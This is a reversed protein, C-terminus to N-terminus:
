LRLKIGIMTWRGPQPLKQFDYYTTNLINNIEIYPVIHKTEYQLKADCLWYPDYQSEITPNNRQQYQTRASLTLGKIIRFDASMTIKYKLYDLAYYSIYELKEVGSHNFNTSASFNELFSMEEWINGLTFSISAEVGSTNVKSYNMTQWKPDSEAKKVWDIINKGRRHFGSVQFNMFSNNYDIGLDFTAADEQVLESNGVNSYGNYYLETFTPLRFSQNASAKINLGNIINYYVDLGLYPAIKNSIENYNLLINAGIIWDRLYMTHNAFANLNVRNKEHTLYVDEEFIHKIPTEREEGLRNSRIRENRADIGINTSGIKSKFNFDSGIGVVDTTHYNHGSYSDPAGENNRYLEFRDFNKKYYIKPAIKVKKGTTLKLSTIANNVQEFQDPHASSYFGNSGFANSIYGLQFDVTTNKQEFNTQYFIRKTDFDTNHMYGDSSTANVNLSHTFNKTKFYLGAESDQFNYNGHTIAIEASNKEPKHTVINIAGSFAGESNYRLGAGELIEIREISSLSIPINLNNHGTQPDSINIGNLMILVQDFSGARISIDAQTSHAGRQRVDLGPVVDLLQALSRAGSRDIENKSVVAIIRTMENDMVVESVERNVEVEDLVIKKSVCETNAVISNLGLTAFYATSLVCVKVMKHMSSFASFSKNGWRSFHLVSRKVNTTKM